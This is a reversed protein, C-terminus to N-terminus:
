PKPVAALNTSANFNKWHETQRQELLNLERRLHTVNQTNAATVVLILTILGLMIVTAYGSETRRRLSIRM